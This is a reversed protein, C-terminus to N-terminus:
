YFSLEDRSWDHQPSAEIVSRMELYAQEPQSNLSTLRARYLRIRPTFEAPPMKALLKTLLKVGEEVEELSTHCEALQIHLDVYTNWDVGNRSGGKMDIKKLITLYAEKASSLDENRMAAEATLYLAKLEKEEDDWFFSSFLILLTFLSLFSKM